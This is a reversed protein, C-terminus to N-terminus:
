FLEPIRARLVDDPYLIWQRNSDWDSLKQTVLSRRVQHQRQDWGFSKKLKPVHTSVVMSPFFCESNWSSHSKAKPYSFLFLAHWQNIFLGESLKVNQLREMLLSDARKLSCLAALDPICDCIILNEWVKMCFCKRNPEEIAAIHCKPYRRWM